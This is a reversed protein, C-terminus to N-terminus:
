PEETWPERSFQVDAGARMRALCRELSARQEAVYGPEVDCIDLQFQHRGSRIGELWHELSHIEDELEPRFFEYEGGELATRIRAIRREAMEPWRPDYTADAHGLKGYHDVNM